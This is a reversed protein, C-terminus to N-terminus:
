APTPKDSTTPKASLGGSLRPRERSRRLAAEPNAPGSSQRVILENAIQLRIPRNPLRNNIRDELLRVCSEGIERGNTRVTTLSPSIQQAISYDGFGIVSIDEPIHYGLRLLESIITVALGDHACFFVTPVTGQEHLASLVDLFRNERDFKLNKFEIDGHREFVERAGYHREVRGRYGPTGQIYAISRHGM